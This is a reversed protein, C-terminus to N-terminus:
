TIYITAIFFSLGFALLALGAAVLGARLNREALRRDM